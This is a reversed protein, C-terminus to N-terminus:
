VAPETASVVSEGDDGQNMTALVREVVVKFPNGDKYYGRDTLYGKLSLDARVKIKDYRKKLDAVRSPVAKDSDRKKWHIVVKYHKGNYNQEEMDSGILTQYSNKRDNYELIAKEVIKLKENDKEKEKAERIALVEEDLLVNNADWITGGTLRRTKDM